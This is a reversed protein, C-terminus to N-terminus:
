QMVACNSSCYTAVTNTCNEYCRVAINYCCWWTTVACNSCYTAVIITYNKCCTVAFIAAIGSCSLVTQVIHPWQSLVINVVHSQLVSAIATGLWLTIAIEIIHGNNYYNEWCTVTIYPDVMTKWANVNVLDRPLHQFGLGFATTKLVEWPIQHINICQFVM